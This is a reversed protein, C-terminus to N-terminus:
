KRLTYKYIIGVLSSPLSRIIKKSFLHFFYQPKTYFGIKRLYNLCEVEGMLYKKGSRRKALDKGTRAKVIPNPTNETKYGNCIFNCFFAYDENANVLPYGGLNIAINKRFAVSPHNFPNRWKAYNLIEEHSLPVKRISELNALNVDYEEMPASILAIENNNALFNVQEEIRNPYCWDDTDFRIIIDGISKLLGVNLCAPLGKKEGSSVFKLVKDTFINVWKETVKLLDNTLSGEVVILIETPLITQNYLSELAKDLYEPKEKWFLSM